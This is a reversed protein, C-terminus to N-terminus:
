WDPGDNSDGVKLNFANSDLNNKKVIEFFISKVEEQVSETADKIELIYKVQVDDVSDAMVMTQFKYGKKVLEDNVQKIIGSDGYIFNEIEATKEAQEEPSLTLPVDSIDGKSSGNNIFLFTVLFLIGITGILTIKGKIIRYVGKKVIYSQIFPKLGVKTIASVQKM